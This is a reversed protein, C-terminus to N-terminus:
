ILSCNGAIFGLEILPAQPTLICRPVRFMLM